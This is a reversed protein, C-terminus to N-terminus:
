AEDEYILYVVNEDKTVLSDYDQATMLKHSKGAEERAATKAEERFLSVPVSVLEDGRVTPLSTVGDLSEAAPLERVDNSEAKMAEVVAAVIEKKEEDTLAM